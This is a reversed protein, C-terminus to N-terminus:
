PSAAAAEWATATGFLSGVLDPDGDFGMPPTDDVCTRDITVSPDQLFQFVVHAGCSAPKEHDHSSFM